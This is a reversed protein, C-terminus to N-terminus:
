NPQVITISTGDSDSDEDHNDGSNYVLAGAVDTVTFTVDAVSPDLLTSLMLCEGAYDTVCEDVILGGATWSGYVTVGEIPNHNSDHVGVIV